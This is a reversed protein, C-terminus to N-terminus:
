RGGRQQHKGHFMLKQKVPSKKLNFGGDERVLQKDSILDQRLHFTRFSQRCRHFRIAEQQFWIQLVPPLKESM